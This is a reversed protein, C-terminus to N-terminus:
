AEAKGLFLTIGNLLENSTFPKTIYYDAGTKYGTLVDTDQVKATLLIVPITSTAANDRLRALAELGDMVPMMVDMLILDPMEANVMDLAELGNYAVFLDYSEELAMKYINILGLDDEVILIKKKM